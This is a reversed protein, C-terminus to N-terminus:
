PQPPKPVGVLSLVAGTRRGGWGQHLFFCHSSKPSPNMQGTFMENVSDTYPPSQHPAIETREREGHRIRLHTRCRNGPRKTPLEM